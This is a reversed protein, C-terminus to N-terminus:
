LERHAACLHAHCIANRDSDSDGNRNRNGYSHRDSYSNCYGDRDCDTNCELM